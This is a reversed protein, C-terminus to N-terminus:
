KEAIGAIAAAIDGSLEAVARSYAAVLADYDSGSVPTQIVSRRLIVPKGNGDQNRIAWTANLWVMDGIRGEFRHVELSVQYDPTVQDKWPHMLVRPSALRISLNEALIRQFTEDFDGAWRHFESLHLRSEGTRTVIQPRDLEDPFRVPGITITKERLGTVGPNPDANEQVASLTYFTTPTAASRCGGAALAMLVAVIAAGTLGRKMNIM